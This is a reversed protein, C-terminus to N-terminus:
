GANAVRLVCEVQVTPKPGKPGPRKSVRLLQFGTKFCKLTVKEPVAALPLNAHFRGQDDTVFVYASEESDVEISVGPLLTGKADKASGFYRIAPGQEDDAAPDYTYQASAAAAFGFTLLGMIRAARSMRNSTNV